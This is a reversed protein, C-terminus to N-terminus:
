RECPSRVARRTNGPVLSHNVFEVHLSKGLAMGINRFMQASCIGTQCGRRDDLVESAQADSGNFQHWYVTKHVVALEHLTAQPIVPTVVGNSKKRRLRTVERRMGDAFKFGHNLSQM